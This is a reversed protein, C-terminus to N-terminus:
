QKRMKSGIGFGVIGGVTGCFTGVILMTVIWDSLVAISSHPSHMRYLVTVIIAASTAGLVVGMLTFVVRIM